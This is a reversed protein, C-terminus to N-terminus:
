LACEALWSFLRELDRAGHLVRIIFVEEDNFRYFLLHKPFGTIIARRADHLIEPRFACPIGTAPHRVLQSIAARVAKEWRRSLKRGSQAAYWDAQELIDAVAADSFVLRRRKM